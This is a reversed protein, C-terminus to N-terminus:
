VDLCIPFKGDFINSTPWESRPLEYFVEIENEEPDHVYIGISIGHDGVGLIPIKHQKMRACMEQLDQFSNMQWAFHYLGAQSKSPTPANEGVAMLALEHSSTGSAAMFVMVEEIEHTIELGIVRSYFDVCARLNRVKLVIHGLKSPRLMM